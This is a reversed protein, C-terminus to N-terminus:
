GNKNEKEIKNLLLYGKSLLYDKVLEIETKVVGDKCEYIYKNDGISASASFNAKDYVGNEPFLLVYITSKEVEAQKSEEIPIFAVEEKEKILSDRKGEKVEKYTFVGM